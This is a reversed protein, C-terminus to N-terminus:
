ELSYKRYDPDIDGTTYRFLRTTWNFTYSRLTKRSTTYAISRARLRSISASWRRSKGGKLRNGCEDVNQRHQLWRNYRQVGEQLKGKATESQDYDFALWEVFAKAEEETPLMSYGGFEEWQWKDLRATGYVTHPSYGEAREPDKGVNM